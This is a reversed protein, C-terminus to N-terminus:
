SFKQVAQLYTPIIHTEPRDDRIDDAWSSISALLANQGILAAVHTKASASLNLDAIEGIISHGEQGWAWLRNYSFLLFFTSSPEGYM